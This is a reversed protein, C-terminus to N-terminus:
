IMSKTKQDYIFRTAEEFLCRMIEVTNTQEPPNNYTLILSQKVEKAILEQAKKVYEKLQNGFSIENRLKEELENIESENRKMENLCRTFYNEQGDLSQQLDEAIKRLFNVYDQRQSTDKKVSELEKNSHM